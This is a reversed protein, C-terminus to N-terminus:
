FSLCILLSIIQYNIILKILIIEFEISKDKLISEICEVIHNGGNYNLIIISVLPLKQENM